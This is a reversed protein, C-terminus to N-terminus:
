RSYNIQFSRRWSLGSLFPSFLTSQLIQNGPLLLRLGEPRTWFLIRVLFREEGGVNYVEGALALWRPKSDRASEERELLHGTFLISQNQGILPSPTCSGGSSACYFVELSASM